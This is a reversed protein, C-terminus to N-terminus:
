LPGPGEWETWLFRDDHLLAALERNYPAYFDSLIKRTDERMRLRSDRHYDYRTQVNECFSSGFRHETEEGLPNLHTNSLGLFKSVGGVLEDKDRDLHETALFLFQQRPVVALWKRIHLFYFGIELRIRGCYHVSEGLKRFVDEMCKDVPSSRTCNRFIEIKRLVKEHFEHPMRLTHRDGLRINMDSCSYWFASYLMDVPNRMVVVFKTDPLIVPLVSPTLCYNVLGENRKYLKWQFLLNPSADIPLSFRLELEADVTPLFNLLYPVLNTSLHPSQHAGFPGRPVWFHPEKALGGGAGASLKELLCFLYSSGCKPFGALFVKPLCVLNSTLGQPYRTKLESALRSELLYNLHVYNLTGLRGRVAPVPCSRGSSSNCHSLYLRTHWCPSSYNSHFSRPVVQRLTTIFHEANNRAKSLLNNRTFYETLNSASLCSDLNAMVLSVEDEVAPRVELALTGSELVARLPRPDVQDGHRSQLFLAALSSLLFLCLLM